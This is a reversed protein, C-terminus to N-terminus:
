AMGIGARDASAADGGDEPWSNLTITFTSGKGPESDVRIDGDHMKVIGHVISLGLGTGKGGQKTTFFPTFLQGMSQAPIGGGEDRVAIEVRSLGAPRASITVTGGDPMAEAANSALNVFAQTLQGADGDVARVAGDIELHIAVKEFQEHKELVSIVSELLEQLRVPDARRTRKRAFDLLGGVIKRCRDAEVAIMKVDDRRADSESLERALIHAYILVTGLPNNLEHAISAALQGMSALRESRILQTQAHEIEIKSQALQQVMTELEEILYPLCMQAEALGQHVAAAKDRCSAYGCAGCNLEDESGHKGMRALIERLESETPEELPMSRDRFGRGLDLGARAQLLVERHEDRSEAATRRRVYRAILEKRAVVSLHNGMVPGGICGQCFLLDLFRATLNGDSAQRLVELARDMGESVVIDNELLDSEMDATKLLGGSVPFIGGIHARPGDFESPPLEGLEVGFQGFLDRLEDFTRVADVAASVEEDQIEAKKGICPGIFVVAAEPYYKQRIFRGLAVMPSVIPTLWPILEPLYKEVYSVIAPCATTILPTGRQRDLLERYALAVLEAGFAVEMVQAFGVKRLGTLVQGSQVEPFAAPFSPALCAIAPRRGGLISTVNPLSKEIAKANMACVRVCNGCSLCRDEIVAAQGGEVKIAKAPCSRVCTYCRRCKERITRVISAM